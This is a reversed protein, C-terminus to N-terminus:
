TGVMQCMQKPELGKHHGGRADRDLDLLIAVGANLVLHHALKLVSHGDGVDGHRPLLLSAGKGGLERVGAATHGGLGLADM